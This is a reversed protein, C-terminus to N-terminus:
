SGTAAGEEPPSPALTRTTTRRTASTRSATGAAKRGRPRPPNAAKRAKAEELRRDLDAVYTTFFVAFFAAFDFDLDDWDLETGNQAHMLWYLAAVSPLWEPPPNVIKGDPTAKFDLSDQWDAISMGTLRQIAMAHKYSIHEIDLSRTEGEFEIKLAM